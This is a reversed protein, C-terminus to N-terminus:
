PAPTAEPEAEADAPQDDEDGGAPLVSMLVQGNWVRADVCPDSGTGGCEAGHVALLLVPGNFDVVKWGLAMFDSRQGGILVSILNGGTGGWPSAMTSCAFGSWDVITEPTADGTLDVQSVSTPPTTVTGNEFSACDAKAEALIDDVTVDAHVTAPTCLAALLFLARMTM